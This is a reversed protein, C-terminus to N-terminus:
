TKPGLTWPSPDLDKKKTVLCAALLILSSDLYILSSDLYIL